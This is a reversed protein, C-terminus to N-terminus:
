NGGYAYGKRLLLSSYLSELKDLKHQLTYHASLERARRSFTEREEPHEYLRRMAAAMEQPKNPRVLIGSDDMIEPIGGVRTSLIPLGCMWAELLTNPLSESLSSIVFVDFVQLYDSVHNKRGLCVARGELGLERIVDEWQAPDAGILFLRSDPLDAQAYAKLLPDFGKVPKNNGVTGFVLGAFDDMGLEARVEERTRQPTGRDDPIGNYIVHRKSKPAGIRGLVRSCAESNVTIADLGPSWYPLPNGPRYIVGRNILTAIKRKRWLWGWWTLLKCAKNHFAHFVVPTQPAPLHSEIFARWQKHSEPLRIWRLDPELEPLEGDHPIFFTVDHGREAMGSAIYLAQRAGGSKSGSSTIYHINM